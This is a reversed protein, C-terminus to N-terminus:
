VGPAHYKEDLTGEGYIECEETNSPIATIIELTEASQGPKKPQFSVTLMLSSNKGNLYSSLIGEKQDLIFDNNKFKQNVKIYQSCVSLNKIVIMLKKTDGIYVLGFNLAYSSLKLIPLWVQLFLEIKQYRKDTHIIQLPQTLTIVSDYLDQCKHTHIITEILEADVICMIKVQACGKSSICITGTFKCPDTEAYIAVSKIHFPDSTELMVEITEPACNHLFFTQILELKKTKSQMVDHACCKFIRNAKPISFTVRPQIIDATIDIEVPPFYIGDQRFYCNDRYKDSPAIRLFGLIKSLFKEEYIKKVKNNYKDPQISIRLFATDNPLIFMERPAVTCAITDVPGYYPLISIRFETDEVDETTNHSSIDSDATKKDELTDESTYEVSIETTQLSEGDSKWSTAMYSSGSHTHATIDSSISSGTSNRENLNETSSYFKVHETESASKSKSARLKSALKDTFLTCVNVTVNFPMSETVSTILFSHWDIAIPVVSTNRLVIKREQLRIGKIITGYKLVPVKSQNRDSISVWIPSGVIQVCIDLTYLPLGTINIELKDVYIGWTDGFAYIDVPVAEFPGINSSLPDVYIVVGSNPQKVRYMIEEILDKEQCHVRKYISKIRDELSIGECSCMVPYFNKLRLRFNTPISTENKIIFTKKEVTRLPLNLFEMVTPQQTFPLTIEFFPVIDECSVIKEQSYKGNGTALKSLQIIESTRTSLTSQEGSEEAVESISPGASADKLVDGQDLNANMLEQEERARYKDLLKMGKKSKGALDLALQLSNVRWEIRVFNNKLEVPQKDSLPFYFTVYLPEINCEIGLMIIKQSNGIFCLMHLSQVIGEKLPMLTIKMKETTRGSLEGKEPCICIKMKEADEGGVDGWSYNLSHDSLNKVTLVCTEEIGIYLTRTPRIIGMTIKREWLLPKFQKLNMIDYHSFLEDILLLNTSKYEEGETRMDEGETEEQQDKIFDNYDSIKGALLEVIEDFAQDSKIQDDTTYQLWVELDAVWVDVSNLCDRQKNTCQKVRSQTKDCIAAEPIDEVYLQLVALYLAPQLNSYEAIINFHHTSSPAFIGHDPRILLFELPFHKHQNMKNEDTQIDRKEWKFYMSIESTNTVYITCQGFMNPASANIQVCYNAQKDVSKKAIKDKKLKKSIQIFFPEYIVGDGIIETALITGNNCLIYVKDVHVGYFDPLFSIHLIMEEQSKLIFYAPWVNFRSLKLVNTDTIDQIHMTAWDIESMAFFRGDGGVNKFKIPVHVTEGVFGIKCDFTMGAFKNHITDWSRVSYSVSDESSNVSDESSSTEPRWAQVLYKANFELIDLSKKSPSCTGLLIPPERYAHLRIILSKGHEVKMVLVEEPEDVDTCRFFVILQFHMGPPVINRNSELRKIVVNFNSNCPRPEIQFKAPSTSVNQLTITKKYLKNLKFNRFQVYTSDAIIINKQMGLKIISRKARANWHPSKSHETNIYIKSLSTLHVLPSRKFIKPNLQALDVLKKYEEWTSLKPPELQDLENIYEDSQDEYEEFDADLEEYKFKSDRDDQDLRTIYKLMKIDAPCPNQLKSRRIYLLYSYKNRLMVNEQHSKVITYSMKWNCTDQPLKQLDEGKKENNGTRVFSTINM